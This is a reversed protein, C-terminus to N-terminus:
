QLEMDNYDQVNQLSHLCGARLIVLYLCAVQFDLSPKEDSSIM